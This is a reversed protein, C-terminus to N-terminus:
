APRRRLVLGIAVAGGIVVACMTGVRLAGVDSIWETVDGQIDYLWQQIGSATPRTSAWGYYAVLVVGMAVSVWPLHEAVVSSISSWVLGIVGFTVLFGATMAAGVKVARLPAPLRDGGEADDTMGLYFSLYAPLLAFGCPNVTAAMGAGFLTALRQGTM